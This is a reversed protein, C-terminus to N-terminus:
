VVVLELRLDVVVGFLIQLVRTAAAALGARLGRDRDAGRLRRRRHDRRDRWYWACGTGGTGGRGRWRRGWSRGGWRRRARHRRLRAVTRVQRREDRRRAAPVARDRGGARVAAGDRRWRRQERGAGRLSRRRGRRALIREGREGRAVGRLGRRRDRRA